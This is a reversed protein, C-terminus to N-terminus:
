IFGVEFSLARRQNSIVGGFAALTDWVLFIEKELRTVRAELLENTRFPSAAAGSRFGSASPLSCDEADADYSSESASTPGM